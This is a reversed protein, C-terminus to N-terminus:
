VDSTRILLDLYDSLADDYVGNSQSGEYVQHEM